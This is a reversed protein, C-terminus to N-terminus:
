YSTNHIYFVKLDVTKLTLRKGLQKNFKKFTKCFRVIHELPLHGLFKVKNAAIHHNFNFKQKISTDNIENENIEDIYSSLDGGKSTLNRMITSVHGVLKKM